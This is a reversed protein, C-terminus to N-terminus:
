PFACSDAVRLGFGNKDCVTLRLIETYLRDKPQLPQHAAGPKPKLSSRLDKLRTCLPKRSGLDRSETRLGSPPDTPSKTLLSIVGIVWITVRSIGM